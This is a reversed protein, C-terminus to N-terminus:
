MFYTSPPLLFIWDDDDGPAWRSRACLVFAHCLSAQAVTRSFWIIPMYTSVTDYLDDTHGSRGYVYAKEVSQCRTAQFLQHLPCSVPYVRNGTVCQAWALARWM